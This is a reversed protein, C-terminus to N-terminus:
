KLEPLGTAILADAIGRHSAPSNGDGPQDFNPGTIIPRVDVCIAGHDAAAACDAQYLLEMILAGKTPALDESMQALEQPTILLWNEDDILRIATPAGDRLLDIEDLIADLNVTWLRGIERVCELQLAGTCDFGPAPDFIVGYLDNTGTSVLIIDAQRIAERTTANFRLSALMTATTEGPPGSRLGPEQDGTFDTELIERGTKERLGDIWLDSFTECGGCHAGEPWSDGMAVYHLPPPGAPAGSQGVAGTAPFVVLGLLVLGIQWIRARRIPAPDRGIASAPPRPSIV